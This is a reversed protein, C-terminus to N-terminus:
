RCVSLSDTITILSSFINTWFKCTVAPLCTKQSLPKENISCYQDVYNAAVPTNVNFCEVKRLVTKLLFIRLKEFYRTQVGTCRCESWQNTRWGSLCHETNCSKTLAEKEIEDCQRKGFSNCTANRFM